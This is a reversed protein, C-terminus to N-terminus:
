EKTKKLANHNELANLSDNDIGIVNLPRAVNQIKELFLCNRM